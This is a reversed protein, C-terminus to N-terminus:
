KFYDPVGRVDDCEATFYPSNIVDGTPSVVFVVQMMMASLYPCLYANGQSTINCIEVCYIKGLGSTYVFKLLCVPLARIHALEKPM